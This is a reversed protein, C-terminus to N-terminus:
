AAEERRKLEARMDAAVRRYFMAKDSRWLHVFRIRYSSMALDPKNTFRALLDAFEEEEVDPWEAQQSTENPRDDRRQDEPERPPQPKSDKSRSMEEPIYIGGLEEPFAKRLAMAEACKALMITGMKHWFPDLMEIGQEVTYRAFAEWPAKGYMPKRFGECYVGVKAWLPPTRENWQDTWTKDEGAWKVDTQGQYKSHRRAILRHADISMVPVLRPPRDRTAPEVWPCLHRCFISLRRKACMAKFGQFLDRNLQPYFAIRLVEDQERPKLEAWVKFNDGDDDSEGAINTEPVFSGYAKVWMAALYDATKGTAAAGQELTLVGQESAKATGPALPAIDGDIIQFLVM